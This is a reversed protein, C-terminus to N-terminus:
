CIDRMALVHAFARRFLVSVRVSKESIHLDKERKKLKQTFNCCQSCLGRQASTLIIANERYIPAM